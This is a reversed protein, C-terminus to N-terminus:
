FPKTETTVVTVVSKGTIMTILSVFTGITVNALM